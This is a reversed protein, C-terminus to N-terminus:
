DTMSLEKAQTRGSLIWENLEPDPYLRTALIWLADHLSPLEGYCFSVPSLPVLYTRLASLQLLIRHFDPDTISSCMFLCLVCSEVISSGIAIPYTLNMTWCTINGERGFKM